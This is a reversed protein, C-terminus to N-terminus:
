SARRWRSLSKFQEDLERLAREARERGEQSKPDVGLERVWLRALRDAWPRGQDPRCFFLPCRRLYFDQLKIVAGRRMSFLFQAELLPFGEPDKLESPGDSKRLDEDISLLERVEAGYRDFLVEPVEKGLHSLELQAAKRADGTALPNVPTRTQPPVLREPLSPAKGKRADEGWSRLAFDVIEEGMTRHTTYKGGAVLVSRGPGHDIRHERSVKQLSAATGQDAELAGLNPDVLPRVGVYASVVDTEKLGLDPLYRNLLDLLYSVDEASVEARAPDAATPGDTTGVIVVGTGYDPRPIAFSIRGDEPHAMVLTGPLKLRKADFILHVGKSPKLWPQWNPDLIKGIEDAWPGTCLVVKKARVPISQASGTLGDRVEFGVLKGDELLPKEAAVYSAVCAGQRVADRLVEIGLVDDWMSADYYRFGGLLGEKRIAPFATEFQSRSLRRHFGPTRFLALLDYLWLGLDYINKSIKAGAYSPLYFPIPRVMHPMTQLLLARESLSEFVLGFELNQLYRLGGHILKSSRSSTGFSFDQREVLAVSLGRSVADRAVAAGTIGGGVVLLDFTEESMRKLAGDRTRFSFEPSADASFTTM